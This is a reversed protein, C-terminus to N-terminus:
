STLKTGNTTSNFSDLGLILAYDAEVGLTVAGAPASNWTMRARATSAKADKGFYAQDVQEFRYRFGLSAKGNAIAERLEMSAPEAPAALVTSVVLVAVAYRTM